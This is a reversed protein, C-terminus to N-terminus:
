KELSDTLNELMEIMKRGQSVYDEEQRQKLGVRKWIERKPTLVLADLIEMRQKHIQASIKVIPHEQLQTVEKDDDTITVTQELLMTGDSQGAVGAYILSARYEKLDLEVLKSVLSRVTPSTELDTGQEQLEEMYDKFRDRIFSGEVICQKNLPFKGKAGDAIYIPCKDIFPCKTKGKCVLPAVTVLGAKMNLLSRFMYERAARTMKFDKYDDIPEELAEMLGGKIPTKPIEKLGCSPEVKKKKAPM